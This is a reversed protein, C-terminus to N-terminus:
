QLSATNRLPCEYFLRCKQHSFSFIGHSIVGCITSHEIYIGSIFSHTKNNSLTFASTTIVTYSFFVSRCKKIVTHQPSYKNQHPLLFLSSFSIPSIHQLATRFTQYIVFYLILMSADPKSSFLCKEESM